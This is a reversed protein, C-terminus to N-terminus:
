SINFKELATILEKFDKPIWVNNDDFEGFSTPQLQSDEVVATECMYGDFYLNNQTPYRGIRTTFASNVNLMLDLNQAPYNATSFDTEQVGNVYIKVRNSATSQTTDYAVVIHYWASVDRFKRTTTLRGNSNSAGEYISFALRDSTDFFISNENNGDQYAHFLWSETSLASRKVWASWTWKRRGATTDSSFTKTLYTSAM